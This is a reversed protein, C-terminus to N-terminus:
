FSLFLRRLNKLRVAANEAPEPSGAPGLVNVRNKKLNCSRLQMPLARRTSVPLPNMRM